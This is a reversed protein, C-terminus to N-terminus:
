RRHGNIKGKKFSYILIIVLCDLVKKFFFGRRFGPLPEHDRLPLSHSSLRVTIIKQVDLPLTALRRSLHLDGHLSMRLSGNILQRVTLYIDGFNRSM